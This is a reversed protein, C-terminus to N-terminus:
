LAGRGYNPNGTIYFCKNILWIEDSYSDNSILANREPMRYYKSIFDLHPELPKHRLTNRGGVM